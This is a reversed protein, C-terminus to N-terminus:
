GWSTGAPVDSVFVRSEGGVLSDATLNTATSEFSRACSYLSLSAAASALYLPLHSSTRPFTSSMLGPPALSLGLAFSSPTFQWGHADVYPADAGFGPTDFADKAQELSHMFDIERLPRHSFAHEGDAYIAYAIQDFLAQRSHRIAIREHADLLGGTTSLPRFFDFCYRKDPIVLSVVGAPNLVRELSRLLGIPDPIHEFVHSAIFADFTGHLERPVAAELPGDSWVIDVEGILSTDVNSDNRYKEVLQERSAHDVVTTLWGDSKPAIPHTLPGLELVRMSRDIVCLVKDNRDMLRPEEIRGDGGGVHSASCVPAYREPTSTVNVASIM